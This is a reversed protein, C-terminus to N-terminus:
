VEESIENFLIIIKFNYEQGEPYTTEDLDMNYESVTATVYVKSDSIQYTFSESGELTERDGNLRYYIWSNPVMVRTDDYNQVSVICQPFYGLNHSVEGSAEGNVDTTLTITKVERYGYVGDASSFILNKPNNEGRVGYAEKSVKIGHRSNTM